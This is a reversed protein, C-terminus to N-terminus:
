QNSDLARKSLSRGVSQRGGARSAQDCINWEGIAATSAQFVRVATAMYSMVGSLRSSTEPGPAQSEQLPQAGVVQVFLGASDGVRQEQVVLAPDATVDRDGTQLLVQELDPRVAIDVQGVERALGLGLGVASRGAPPNLDPIGGAPGAADTQPPRQGTFHDRCGAVVVERVIGQPVEAGLLRADAPDGHGGHSQGVHAFESPLDVGARVVPLPQPVHQPLGTLSM